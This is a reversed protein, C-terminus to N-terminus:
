NPNQVILPNPVILIVNNFPPDLGKGIHFVTLMMICNMTKFLLQELEVETSYKVGLIWHAEWISVLKYDRTGFTFLCYLKSFVLQLMSANM